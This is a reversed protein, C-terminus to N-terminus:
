LPHYMFWFAGMVAFVAVIILAGVIWGLYPNSDDPARAPQAV